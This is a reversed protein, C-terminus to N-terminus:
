RLARAVIADFVRDPLLQALRAQVKAERGVLYRTRPRDATMAEGIVEAVASPPLGDRANAEAAQRIKTELPAYRARGAPDGGAVIEDAM